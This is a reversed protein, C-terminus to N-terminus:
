KLTGQEVSVIGFVIITKSKLLVRGGVRASSTRFCIEPLPFPAGHFVQLSCVRSNLHLM